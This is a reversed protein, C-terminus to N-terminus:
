GEYVGAKAKQYIRDAAAALFRYGFFRVGRMLRMTKGNTQAYYYPYQEKLVTDYQQVEKKVSGFPGLAFFFKYQMDCVGTLRQRFIRRVHPEKVYRKEYALMTYLM